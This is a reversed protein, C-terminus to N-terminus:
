DARKVWLRLKYFDHDKQKPNKDRTKDIVHKSLLSSTECTKVLKIDLFSQKLRFGEPNTGYFCPNRVYFQISKTPNGVPFWIESDTRSVM